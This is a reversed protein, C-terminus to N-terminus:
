KQILYIGHSERYEELANQVEPSNLFNSIVQMAPKLDTIIKETLNDLESQNM